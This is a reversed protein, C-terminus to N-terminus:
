NQSTYIVVENPMCVIPSISETDHWGMQECNHNPCEVDVVRFRKDQVELCMKGYSGEFEYIDNKNIDFELIVEDKYEVIGKDGNFQSGIYLYGIYFIMSVILCGIILKLDKKNMHENYEIRPLYVFTEILKTM